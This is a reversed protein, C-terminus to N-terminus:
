DHCLRNYHDLTSLFHFRSLCSRNDRGDLERPAPIGTTEVILSPEFKRGSKCLKEVAQRLRLQEQCTKVAAYSLQIRNGFPAYVFLKEVCEPGVRCRRFVDREVGRIQTSVDFHVVLSSDGDM